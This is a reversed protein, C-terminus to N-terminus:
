IKKNTGTTNTHSSQPTVTTGQNNEDPKNIAYLVTILIIAIVVITTVMIITINTMNDKKNKLIKLGRALSM